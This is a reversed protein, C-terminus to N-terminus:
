ITRNTLRERIQPVLNLDTIFLEHLRAAACPLAVASNTCGGVRQLAHPALPDTLHRLRGCTHGPWLASFPCLSISEIGMSGSKQKRTSESSPFRHQGTVPQHAALSQTHDRVRMAPAPFLEQCIHAYYPHLICPEPLRLTLRRCHPWRIAAMPFVFTSQRKSTRADV